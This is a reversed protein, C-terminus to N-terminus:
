HHRLPPEITAFVLVCPWLPPLEKKPTEGDSRWALSPGSNLLAGCNPIRPLKSNRARPLKCKKCNAAKLKNNAAQLKNNAAKLKCSSIQILILTLIGSLLIWCSLNPSIEAAKEGVQARRLIAIERRFHQRSLCCSHAWKAWKTAWKAWKAARTAGRGASM